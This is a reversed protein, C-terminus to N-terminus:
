FHHKQAQELFNGMSRQHQHKRVSPHVGVPINKKQYILQNQSASM